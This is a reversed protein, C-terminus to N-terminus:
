RRERNQPICRGGNPMGYLNCPFQLVEASGPLHSPPHPSESHDVYARADQPQRQVRPRPQTASTGRHGLQNYPRVASSEM